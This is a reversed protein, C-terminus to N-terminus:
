YVFIDASTLATGPNLTAFAVADGAASGNADYYLLGKAKDYVIFDNADRAAAGTVFSGGALAGLALKTFDARELRITDYQAAFDALKDRNTAGLAADFVFYDSGAGGAITDSGAGGYLYDNGQGGSLRDNGAGGLLRNNVQNGILADNGAGGTAQEIVTNPGIAVTARTSGNDFLIAESLTSFKGENLDIAVAKTGNYVIRDIGGADDITQFYRQGEVFTHTTNGSNHSINRGYLAQIGLLDYYMPTTPMFSATGSDGSTRASYSMVSYFYNDLNDPLANPGEFSHKLGLAHGIEHILTHFDDGGATPNAKRASNFHTAQLWIDGGSPDNSPYYAHAYEDLSVTSSKAIRLEGASSASDSVEKFTINAVASWASLALRVLNKEGSTMNTLGQWESPTSWDGYPDVHSAGLGPFSFTLTVGTGLAGGWKFEDVTYKGLGTAAPSITTVGTSNKFPTAM